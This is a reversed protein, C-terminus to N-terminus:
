EAAESSIVEREFGMWPALVPEAFRKEDEVLERYARRGDPNRFSFELDDQSAWYMEALGLPMRHEVGRVAAMGENLPHPVHPTQVYRVIRLLSAYKLMMDGHDEVWRKRAVERDLDDRPFILYTLKIM